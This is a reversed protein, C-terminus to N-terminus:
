IVRQKHRRKPERDHEPDAKYNKVKCASSQMTLSRLSIKKVM